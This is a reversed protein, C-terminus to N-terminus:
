LDGQTLPILRRALAEEDKYLEMFKFTNADSRSKTLQYLLNEPENARVKATMDAVLREFEAGKGGQVKVISISAIMVDESTILEAQRGARANGLDFSAPTPLGRAIM